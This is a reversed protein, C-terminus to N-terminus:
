AVPPGLGAKKGVRYTYWLVVCGPLWLLLIEPLVADFPQWPAEFRRTSFPALFMVGRGYVALADLVGHSVIGLALAAWLRWRWRDWVRARFALAVVAAALLGAFLLSHTFARHGGLWQLDGLGFPRGIADVDPLVACTALAVRFRRSRMPPGLAVGVALAAFAHGVSSPM